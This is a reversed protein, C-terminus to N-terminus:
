QEITLTHRRQPLDQQRISELLNRSIRHFIEAYLSAPEAVVIPIGQDGGIRIQADLPLAGLFPVHYREAARQACGHDFIETRAQCQPCVFYSMNEILGLIPVNVSRFMELGRLADDLAVTQPTSVIIGGTLAASQSLTLQADGTGPPLDVLLYDLAGWAVQQLFQKIMKGILPGRWIIPRDGGGLFGVSMLKVGHNELPLMRGQDDTRPREHVGMMTPINPGHIDADLLGVAAGTHALTVALNVAVTSKGVGGKGSAVAIVEQAQQLSM